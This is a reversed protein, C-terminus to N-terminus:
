RRKRRRARILWDDNLAPGIAGDGAYDMGFYMYDAAARDNDTFGLSAPYVMTGRWPCAPNIASMRKAVTDTAM